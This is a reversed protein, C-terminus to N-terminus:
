APLPKGNFWEAFRHRKLFILYITITIMGCNFGWFVMPTLALSAYRFMLMWLVLLFYCPMFWKGFHTFLVTKSFFSNIVQVAGLIGAMVIVLAWSVQGSVLLGVLAGVTMALDGIMDFLEGSKTGSDFRKAIWGDLVDTLGAVMLVLFAATWSLESALIAIVLGLPIRAVSLANPLNM